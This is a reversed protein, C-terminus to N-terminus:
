QKVATGVEQQTVQRINFGRLDNYVHATFNNVSPANRLKRTKNLFLDNLLNAIETPDTV